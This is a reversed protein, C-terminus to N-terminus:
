FYFTSLLSFFILSCTYRNMPSLEFSVKGLVISNKIENNNQSTGSTIKPLTAMYLLSLPSNSPLSPTKNMSEQTQSDGLGHTSTTTTKAHEETNALCHITEKNDASVASPAISTTTTIRKITSGKLQQYPTTNKGYSISTLLKSDKSSPETQSRLVDMQLLSDNPPNEVFEDILKRSSTLSINELINKDKKTDMSKQTASPFSKNSSTPSTNEVTTNLSTQPQNLQQQETTTNTLTPNNFTVITSPSLSFPVLFEPQQNMPQKKHTFSSSSGAIMSSQSAVAPSVNNNTTATTPTNVPSQQQNMALLLCPQQSTLTPTSSNGSTTLSTQPKLIRFPINKPTGTVSTGHPLQLPRGEICALPSQIPLSSKILLSKGFLGSKTIQFTKSANTPALIKLPETTPNQPSAETPRRRMRKRNRNGKDSTSSFVSTIDNIHTYTKKPEEQVKMPNTIWLLGIGRPKNNNLSSFNEDHHHHQNKYQNTTSSSLPHIPQMLRTKTQNLNELNEVTESVKLSRVSEIFPGNTTLDSDSRNAREDLSFAEHNKISLPPKENNTDYQQQTIPPSLQATQKDTSFVRQRNQSDVHKQTQFSDRHIVPVNMSSVNSISDDILNASHSELVNDDKVQGQKLSVVDQIVPMPLQDDDESDYIVIPEEPSQLLIDNGQGSVSLTCDVTNSAKNLSETYSNIHDKYSPAKKIDKSTILTPKFWLISFFFILLKFQYIM